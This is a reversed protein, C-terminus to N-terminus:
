GLTLSPPTSLDPWTLYALYSSPLPSVGFDSLLIHGDQAILVNEPKVDRYIVMQVHLYRLASAVEAFVLRAMRESLPGRQELRFLLDGGGAYSMALHMKEADDFAYRCVRLTAILYANPLAHLHWPLLCRSPPHTLSTSGLSPAHVHQRHASRAYTLSVIYPHRLRQLIRSEEAARVIDKIGKKPISKLAFLRPQAPEFRFASGPRELQRALFVQGSAGAGLVGLIEFDVLSIQSSNPLAGRAPPAVIPEFSAGAMTEYLASSADAPTEGLLRATRERQLLRARHRWRRRCAAITLVLALLAVAVGIAIATIEPTSLSFAPPPLVPPMPPLLPPRSPLPPLPPPPPLAPPPMPPLPPSFECQLHQASFCAFPEKPLPCQLHNGHLDCHAAGYVDSLLSSWSEPVTGHLQNQELRLETMDRLTHWEPPLTGSIHNGSLRLITTAFLKGYSAPLTGSIRNNFYVLTTLAHLGSWEPPLTGSLRTQAVMSRKQYAGSTGLGWSSPLHGSIPPGLVAFMNPPHRFIPLTGSLRTGSIAFAGAFRHAAYQSPITGTIGGHDGQVRCGAGHGGKGTEGDIGSAVALLVLKPSAALQSPLTGSTLCGGIELSTLASLSGLQTPITGSAYDNPFVTLTDLSSLQGLQTPLTGSLYNNALNMTALASANQFNSPWWGELANSSLSISNLRPNLFLASPLTGDLSNFDAVVQVVTRSLVPLSGSITNNSLVISQLQTLSAWETPITGSLQNVRVQARM